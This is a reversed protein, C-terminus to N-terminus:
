NFFVGYTYLSSVFKGKGHRLGDAFQGTYIDENKFKHTGQGEFKGKAFGGEYTDGNSFTMKGQGNECNGSVCKNSIPAADQAFLLTSHVLFLIALGIIIKLNKM